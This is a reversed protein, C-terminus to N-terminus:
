EKQFYELSIGQNADDERKTKALTFLYGQCTPYKNQIEKLIANATTGSTAVDDLLLIKKGSLDPCNDTLKYVDLLEAERDVKKPILALKKTVRTKYIITPKYPITLQLGIQTGLYDLPKLNPLLRLVLPGPAVLESSGLTRIVYDVSIGAKRIEDIAWKTWYAVYETNANKFNKIYVSINDTDNQPIYYCLHWHKQFPSYYTNAEIM